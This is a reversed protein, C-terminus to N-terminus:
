KDIYCLQTKFQKQVLIPSWICALFATQATSRSGEDIAEYKGKLEQALMWLYILCIYIFMCTIYIYLIHNHGKHWSRTLVQLYVISWLVLNWPKPLVNTSGKWISSSKTPLNRMRRSSHCCRHNAARSPSFMEAPVLRVVQGFVNIWCKQQVGPKTPLQIFISKHSRYPSRDVWLNVIVLIYSVFLIHDNNQLSLIEPEWQSPVSELAVPWM